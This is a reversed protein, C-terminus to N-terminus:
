VALSFETDTNDWRRTNVALCGTSSSLVWPKSSGSNSNLSYSQWTKVYPKHGELVGQEARSGCPSKM